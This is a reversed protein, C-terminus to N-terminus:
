LHNEFPFSFKVMFNYHPEFVGERRSSQANWLGHKSYSHKTNTCFSNLSSAKIRVNGTMQSMLEAQNDWLYQEFGELEEIRHSGKEPHLSTTKVWFVGCMHRWILLGLVNSNFSKDSKGNRPIGKLNPMYAPLQCKNLVTACAKVIDFEARKLDLISSYDDEDSDSGSNGGSEEGGSGKDVEAQGKKGKVKVNNCAKLSGADKVKDTLLDIKKSLLDLKQEVYCPKPVCSMKLRDVMYKELATVDGRFTVGIPPENEDRNIYQTFHDRCLMTSVDTTYDGLGYSERREDLFGLCIAAACVYGPKEPKEMCCVTSTPRQHFKCSFLNIVHMINEIQEGEKEVGRAKKRAERVVQKVRKRTKKQLKEVNGGVERVVV